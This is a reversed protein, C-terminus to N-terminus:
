PIADVQPEAQPEVPVGRRLSEARDAFEDLTELVRQGDDPVLAAHFDKRYTLGMPILVETFIDIPFRAHWPERLYIPQSYSQYGPLYLSLRRHGYHEFPYELPTTGIVNEDLRVLAGSPESTVSLYRHPTCAALLALLSAACLPRLLGSRGPILNRVRAM